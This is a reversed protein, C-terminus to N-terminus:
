AIKYFSLNSWALLKLHTVKEVRENLRRVADYITRRKINAQNALTSEMEEVVEDWSVPKGVPKRFVVRCVYFAYSGGEVPITKGGWIIQPPNELFRATTRKKKPILAGSPPAEVGIKRAEQDLAKPSQVTFCITGKTRSCEEDDIMPSDCIGALKERLYTWLISLKRQGREKRDSIQVARADGLPHPDPTETFEPFPTVGEEVKIEIVKGKRLPSHDVFEKM